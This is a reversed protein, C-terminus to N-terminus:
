RTEINSEQCADLFYSILLEFKLCHYQHILRVLDLIFMKADNFQDPSWHSQVWSMRIAPNLVVFDHSFDFVMLLKGSECMSVAYADIAGMREDYKDAWTLGINILPACHPILIAIKEWRKIM